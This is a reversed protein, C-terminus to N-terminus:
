CACNGQNTAYHPAQLELRERQTTSSQTPLKEAIKRFLVKINYGAKCSTELFLANFEDAQKKGEDFTVKRNEELDTKNGVLVMILDYGRESRVDQVWKQTM